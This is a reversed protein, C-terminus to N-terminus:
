RETRARRALVTAGWAMGLGLVDGMNHAADALLATSHAYLGAAIGIVVFAVNLTIGVAFARTLRDPPAHHHGAHGHDHKEHAHDHHHHAHGHDHPEDHAHDAHDTM